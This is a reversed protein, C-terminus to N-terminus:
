EIRGLKIIESTVAGTATVANEGDQINFVQGFCGFLSM